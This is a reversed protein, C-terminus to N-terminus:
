LSLTRTRYPFEKFTKDRDFYVEVLSIAGTNFDKTLAEGCSFKKINTIFAHLDELECVVRVRNESRL